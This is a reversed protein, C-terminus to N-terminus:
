SPRQKISRRPAGAIQKFQRFGGASSFFCNLGTVIKEARNGVICGDVEVCTETSINVLANRKFSKPVSFKAASLQFPFNHAVMNKMDEFVTADQGFVPAKQNTAALVFARVANRM